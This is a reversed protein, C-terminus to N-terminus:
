AAHQEDGVVVCLALLGVEFSVGSCQLVTYPCYLSATLCNSQWSLPSSAYVSVTQITHMKMRRSNRDLKM